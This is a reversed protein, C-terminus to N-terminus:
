ASHGSLEAAEQFLPEKLHTMMWRYQRRDAGLLVTDALFKERAVSKVGSRNAIYDPVSSSIGNSDCEQDTAPDSKRVMYGLEEELYKVATWREHYETALIGGQHLNLFVRLTLRMGTFFYETYDHKFILGKIGKMLVILGSNESTTEWGGLSELKSRAFITCQGMIVNYAHVM